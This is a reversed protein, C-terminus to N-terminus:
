ICFWNKCNPCVIYEGQVQYRKVDEQTYEIIAACKPCVATKIIPPTPEVFGIVRAM